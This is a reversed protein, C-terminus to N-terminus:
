VKVGNPTAVGLDQTLRKTFSVFALAVVTSTLMIVNFPMSFDPTPINVTNSDTYHRVEETPTVLRLFSTSTPSSGRSRITVIASSVDFGRHTSIGLSLVDATLTKMLFLGQKILHISM